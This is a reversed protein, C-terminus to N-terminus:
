PGQGGGGSGLVAAVGQSITDTADADDAAPPPPIAIVNPFGRYVDFTPSVTKIVVCQDGCVLLTWNPYYNGMFQALEQLTTDGQQGTVDAVSRRVITANATDLWQRIWSENM